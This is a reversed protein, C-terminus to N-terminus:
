VFWRPVTSYFACNVTSNAENLFSDVFIAIFFVSIALVVALDPKVCIEFLM